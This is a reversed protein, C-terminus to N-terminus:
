LCECSNILIVIFIQMKSYVNIYHVHVLISTCSAHWFLNSTEIQDIQRDYCSCHNNHKDQKPYKGAGYRIDGEFFLTVLIRIKGVTSHNEKIYQIRLWFSSHNNHRSNYGVLLDYSFMFQFSNLGSLQFLRDKFPVLLCRDPFPAILFLNM